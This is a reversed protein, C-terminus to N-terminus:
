SHSALELEAVRESLERLSRNLFTLAEVQATYTANLESRLAEHSGVVSAMEAFRQNMEVVLQNIGSILGYMEDLLAEAKPPFLLLRKALSAATRVKPM